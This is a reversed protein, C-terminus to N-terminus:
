YSRQGTESLMYRFQVSSIGLCQVADQVINGVDHRTESRMMMMLVDGSELLLLVILM